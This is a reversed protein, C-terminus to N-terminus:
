RHREKYNKVIEYIIEFNDRIEDINMVKSNLDQKATYLGFITIVSLFDDEHRERIKCNDELDIVYDKM